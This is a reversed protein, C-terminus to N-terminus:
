MAKSTLTFTGTAGLNGDVIVYYSGPNLAITLVASTANQFGCNLCVWM